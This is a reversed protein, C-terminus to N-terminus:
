HVRESRASISCEGIYNVLEIRKHSQLIAYSIASSSVTRLHQVSSKKSKDEMERWIQKYNRENECRAMERDRLRFTVNDNIVM